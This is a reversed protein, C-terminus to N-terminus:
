ATEETNGEDYGEDVSSEDLEGTEEYEETYVPEEEEDEEADTNEEDQAQNEELNVSDDYNVSQEYTQKTEESQTSVTTSNQTSTTTSSTTRTSSTSIGHESNWKQLIAPFDVTYAYMDNYHSDVKLEVKAGDVTVNITEPSYTTIVWVGTVEVSREVPGTLMEPTMKGDAYTEVYCESGSPVSYIVRASTPALEVKTASESSEGTTDAVGSVPLQSVDEKDDTKKGGFIAFAIGGILLLAIVAAIIIAVRSQMFAPLRSASWSNPTQGAYVSRGSRGQSNDDLFNFSSTDYGSHHSLFDRDSVGPRSTRERTVGYDDRAYRTGDDYLVRTTQTSSSRIKSTRDSEYSRNYSTGASTRNRSRRTDREMNFGSSPASGRAREVQNAYAEDLYMNVIDTPNLGLLRAYANVMNRTYGRPPMASFDGAEIARLIDPRIRLRRAVTNLDYGKRERAERLVKGSTM